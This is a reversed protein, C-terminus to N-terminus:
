ERKGRTVIAGCDCQFINKCVTKKKTKLDVKELPKLMDDPHECPTGFRLYNVNSM